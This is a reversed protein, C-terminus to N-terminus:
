GNQPTNAFRNKRYYYENMFQTGSYLKYTGTEKAKKLMAEFREINKETAAGMIEQLYYEFDQYDNQNMAEYIARNEPTSSKCLAHLFLRYDKWPNVKNTSNILQVIDNITFVDSKELSDYWGRYEKPLVFIFDNKTYKLEM